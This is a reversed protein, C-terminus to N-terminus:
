QFRDVCAQMKDTNPQVKQICAVLREAQRQQANDLNSDRIQKQIDAINGDVVDDVNFDSLGADDFANDITGDIQDFANNTTDLVPKIAFIYVAALIAVTVILGILRNALNEAFM